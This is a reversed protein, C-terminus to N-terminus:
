YIVLSKTALNKAYENQLSGETVRLTTVYFKFPIKLLQNYFFILGDTLNMTKISHNVCHLYTGRNYVVKDNHIIINFHCVVTGIFVNFTLCCHKLSVIYRKQQHLM